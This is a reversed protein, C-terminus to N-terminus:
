SVSGIPFSARGCQSVTVRSSRPKLFTLASVETLRLSQLRSSISM